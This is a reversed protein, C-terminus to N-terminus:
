FINEPYARARCAGGRGRSRRRRRISCSISHGSRSRSTCDTVASGAAEGDAPPARTGIPGHAPAAVHARLSQSTLAPWCARGRASIRCVAERCLSLSHTHWRTPASRPGRGFWLQRTIAAVDAGPAPTCVQRPACRGAAFGTLATAGRWWRGGASKQERPWSRSAHMSCLQAGPQSLDHTHRHPSPDFYGLNLARVCATPSETLAPPRAPRRACTECHVSTGALFRRAPGGEAHWISPSKAQGGFRLSPSSCYRKVEVGGPARGHEM